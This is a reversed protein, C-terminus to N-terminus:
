RYAAEFLATATSFGVEERFLNWPDGDEDFVKGAVSGLERGSMIQYRKGQKFTKAMSLEHKVRTCLITKTKVQLFEAIVKGDQELNIVGCNSVSLYIRKKKGDREIQISYGCDTLSGRYMRSVEIEIKVFVKTCLLNVKSM